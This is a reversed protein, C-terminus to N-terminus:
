GYVFDLYDAVASLVQSSSRYKKALHLFKCTDEPGFKKANHSKNYSGLAAGIVSQWAQKSLGAICGSLFVYLNFKNLDVLFAHNPVISMSFHWRNFLITESPQSWKCDMSFALIDHMTQFASSLTLLFSPSSM